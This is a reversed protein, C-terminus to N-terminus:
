AVMRVSVDGAVIREVRDGTNVLLAGTEDVGAATGSVPPTAGDISVQRGRLFDVGLFEAHYLPFGSDRYGPLLLSVEEILRAALINRSPSCGGTATFLDIAGDSWGAIDELAAPEIRVNIGVGIVVYCNDNSRSRLEVLVGGLKKDDVVLDNPWKLQATVGTAEHLARRIVVGAALALAALNRPVRDYLWGASLCLSGGSPAVWMKGRRGRGASQYEALCVTLKGAVPADDDLLAQNTSDIEDHIELRALGREVVPDLESLIAAGSLFELSASL